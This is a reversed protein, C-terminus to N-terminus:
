NTTLGGDVPLSLGTIMRAAPSLLFAITNAVDETEILGLYQRKLLDKNSEEGHDEIYKKYMETRTMAPVVTNICIGKEAVEKAICRVSADMAAKSGSYALHAKDGRTAAVSSIGVIRMRENYRGRKCVQRVMEIFGFYNTKFVQELRDPKFQSLPMSKNTGAAYVLGDLKGQDEVICKVLTETNETESLDWVYYANDKGTLEEMVSRLHDERRAILVVKAGLNSLLISTQRGIGSSAGAIVIRKDALNIIEEM